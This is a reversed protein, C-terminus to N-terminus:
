NIVIKLLIKLLKINYICYLNFIRFFWYYIVVYIFDM